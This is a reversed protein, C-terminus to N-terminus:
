VCVCVAATSLSTAAKGEGEGVHNSNCALRDHSEPNQCCLLPPTSRTSHSSKSLLCVDHTSRYRGHEPGAATPVTPVSVHVCVCVCARVCACVYLCVRVYVYVYARVCACMSVCVCACVCAHVCLVHRVENTLFVCYTSYTCVHTHTHTCTCTHTCTHTHTLTLVEDCLTEIESILSKSRLTRSDSAKFTIGQHDLSQM